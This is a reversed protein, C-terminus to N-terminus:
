NLLAEYHVYGFSLLYEAQNNGEVITPHQIVANEILSGNGLRFSYNILIKGLRLHEREDGINLAFLIPYSFIQLSAMETVDKFSINRQYFKDVKKFLEPLKSYQKRVFDATVRHLDYFSECNEEDYRTQM